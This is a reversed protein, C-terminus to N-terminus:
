VMRMTLLKVGPLGPKWVLNNARKQSDTPLVQGRIMTKTSESHYSGGLRQKERIPKISLCARLLKLASGWTSTTVELNKKRAACKRM